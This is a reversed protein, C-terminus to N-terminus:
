RCRHLLAMAQASMGEERGQFGLRESTTAKVGVNDPSIGMAKAMNERMQARYPALKPQQAVIVTDVDLIEFGEERVREAAIALLRMSDAGEWKADSDPFLEGIDGLRAASLIADGVAHALVDADSHGLLGRFYPITVGGIILPRGGVLEHVDTGLGIRLDAPNIQTM